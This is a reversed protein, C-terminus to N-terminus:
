SIRRLSVRSGVHLITATANTTGQAWLLTLSGTSTSMILTGTLTVSRVAGAGGSGATVTNTTGSTTAQEGGVAAAGSTNVDVPSLFLSAGTPTTWKWAFDASGQTGGEYRFYVYVEYIASPVNLPIVLDPDATQTVTNSRSTDGLKWAAIPSFSQLLGATLIEGATVVPFQGNPM